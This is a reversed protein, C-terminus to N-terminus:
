DFEFRLVLRAIPRSISKSDLCTKTKTKFLILPRILQFYYQGQELVASNESCSWSQNQPHINEFVSVSVMHKFIVTGHSPTKPGVNKFGLCFNEDSVLFSENLQLRLQLRVKTQFIVVFKKLTKPVIGKLRFVKDLTKSTKNRDHSRRQFKRM